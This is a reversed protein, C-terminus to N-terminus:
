RAARAPRCRTTSTTSGCGSTRGAAPATAAGPGECALGFPDAPAPDGSPWWAGRLVQGHGAAGPAVEGQRRQRRGRDRRRGLIAVGSWAAAARLLHRTTFSQMSSEGATRLPPLSLARKLSRRRRREGPTRRAAPAATRHRAPADIVSAEIFDATRAARRSASAPGCGTSPATSTASRSARSPRPACPGCSVGMQGWLRASSRGPPRTRRTCRQDLDAARRVSRSCCRRDKSALAVQAPWCCCRARSRPPTRTAAQAGRHCARRRRARAAVAGALLVVGFARGARRQAPQRARPGARAGPADDARKWDRRLTAALGKSYAAILQDAVPQAPDIPQNEWRECRPRRALGDARPGPGAGGLPGARQGAGGAADRGPAAARRASANPPWRTAACTPFGGSDNLRSAQDLKEFMAAMGAPAFGAEALVGFGIRDAEREIDRSFNLQGQM